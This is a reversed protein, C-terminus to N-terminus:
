AITEKRQWSLFFNDIFVTYQGAIGAEAVAFFDYGGSQTYCPMKIAKIELSYKNTGYPLITTVFNHTNFQGHFASFIVRKLQM